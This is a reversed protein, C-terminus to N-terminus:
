VDDMGSQCNNMVYETNSRIAKNPNILYAKLLM